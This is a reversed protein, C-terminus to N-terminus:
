SRVKNFVMKPLTFLPKSSLGMGAGLLNTTADVDSGSGSASPQPQFRLKYTPISRPRRISM